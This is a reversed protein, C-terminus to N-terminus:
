LWGYLFVVDANMNMEKNSFTHLPFAHPPWTLQGPYVGRGGTGLASCLRLDDSGRRVRISYKLVGMRDATWPGAGGGGSDISM